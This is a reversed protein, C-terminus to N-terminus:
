WQRVLTQVAHILATRDGREWSQERIVPQGGVVVEQVASPQMAYVINALLTDKTWPILSPDALDIGVFDALRGPAIIGAPLKLVEAGQFTGMDFVTRTTVITADRSIGKHLLAAMRMEEFVSSRNNSCGGDTGLGAHIHHTLLQPLPAIGDALFLNSSPCYAWQTRSNGLLEIDDPTVCVLHVAITQPGLVGLHHLYAVPTRGTRALVEDVEFQEEAVHIHCPVNLDCSLAHAARIMDDSAGHLSHPAIHLSVRPDDAVEDALTQTRRVAEDISEQYSRPAGEWDYFTRALVLRIGSDRAAQIVARDNELSDDHIYFFEAVTTIGAHLMEVFALKSGLYLSQPDLHPTIHYLTEDRWRLFPQDTGRGRALHQFAHAHVNVTGPLLLRGRWDIEVSHPYFAAIAEREGAALFRGTTDDVVVSWDAKLDGEAWVYAASYRRQM